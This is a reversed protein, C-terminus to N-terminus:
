RCRSRRASEHHHHVHPHPLRRFAPDDRGSVAIIVCLHAFSVKKFIEIGCAKYIDM